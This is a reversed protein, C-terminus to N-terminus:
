HLHLTRMILSWLTIYPHSKKQNRFPAPPSWPPRFPPMLAWASSWLVWRRWAGSKRPITNPCSMETKWVKWNSSFCICSNFWAQRMLREIKSEQDPLLSGDRGLSVHLPILNMLSQLCGLWFWVCLRASELIHPMKSFFPTQCNDPEYTCTNPKKKGAIWLAFCFLSEATRMGNCSGGWLCM